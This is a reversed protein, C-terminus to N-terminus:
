AMKKQISVVVGGIRLQDLYDAWIQMMELRKQIYTTRNYARGNADRIVHALQAEIVLPDVELVEALITRATARFGHVSHRDPGYGLTALAARLTNDSIPRDHFRQGPFVLEGHGTHRKLTKLIEVAQRALPVIHDDGNLKGEIRRKMRLSPITWVGRELDLEAWKMGRVEGPRQFLLPSLQLAAKTGFSGQYTDIARLLEGLAKPEIIAAFHRGIHKNLAQKLCATIDSQVAGIAVAYKWISRATALVRHAVDYSGRDEVKRLVALLQQPEIDAMRLDGLHPYLDKELNRRERVAYHQSWPAHKKEYWDQAIGKFTDVESFQAKLQAQKRIVSPDKGDDKLRKQADRASRAQALSIQPYSGLTLLKEKGRIRYKWRWLRSGNPTVLLFLGGSDFFKKQKLEPPCKSNRCVADTLM